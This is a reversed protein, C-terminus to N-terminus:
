RSAPHIRSVRRPWTAELLGVLRTILTNLPADHRAGAARDAIAGNLHAIETHRGNMLDQLTSALHDGSAAPDFQAKM